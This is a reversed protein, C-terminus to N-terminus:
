ILLYTKWEKELKQQISNLHEIELESKNDQIIILYEVEPQIRYKELHCNLQEMSQEMRICQSFFQESFM